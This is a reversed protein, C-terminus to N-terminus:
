HFAKADIGGRIYDIGTVQPAAASLTEISNMLVTGSRTQFLLQDGKIAVLKATFMKGNKKECHLIVGIWTKLLDAFTTEETTNM